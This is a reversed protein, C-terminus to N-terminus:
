RKKPKSVAMPVTVMGLRGSIEDFLLIDLYDEGYPLNVQQDFTLTANPDSHIRSEDATITAKEGITAVSDGYHNLALITAYIEYTGTNANVNGPAVSASPVTYEIRYATEGKRPPKAPIDAPLEAGAKSVTAEFVLPRRQERSVEVTSGNKRLLTRTKPGQTGDNEGDDYYGRRYSLQCRGNCGSAKVTVKHWKGDRHLDTPTYTLTYYDGDTDLVKQTIAALGNDNYWAHGGTAEADQAMLQQQWAMGMEFDVTLGRADIPYVAIREKELMDYLPRRPMTLEPVPSLYADSGGSFWLINKRGPVQSVYSAIQWLTDYGTSRWYAQVTIHPIATRIATMLLQKNTTFSQLPLTVPGTRSFVAVPEGAPLDRVFRTLQEYLYMQDPLQITTTDVLLLNVVPPPHVDFDNSFVNGSAEIYEGPPTRELTHEEFSAIEQHKGDDFVQFDGRSLGRIPNGKPDSVTVDTLVVRTNVQLTYPSQVPPSPPSPQVSQAAASATVAMMPSLLLFGFWRAAM